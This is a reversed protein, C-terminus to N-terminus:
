PIFAHAFAMEHDNRSLSQETLWLQTRIRDINVMLIIADNDSLAQGYAYLSGSAFLQTIVMTTVFYSILRIRPKIVLKDVMNKKILKNEIGQIIVVQLSLLM